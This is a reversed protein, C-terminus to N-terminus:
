PPPTPRWGGSSTGSSALAYLHETVSKPSATAYRRVRELRERDVRQTVEKSSHGRLPDTQEGPM